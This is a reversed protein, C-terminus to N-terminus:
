SPGIENSCTFYVKTYRAIYLKIVSEGDIAKTNKVLRIISLYIFLNTRIQTFTMGCVLNSYDRYLRKNENYVYGDKGSVVVVALHAVFM